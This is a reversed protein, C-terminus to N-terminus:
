LSRKVVLACIYKFMAPHFKKRSFKKPDRTFKWVPLENVARWALMPTGHAVKAAAARRLRESEIFKLRKPFYGERKNCWVRLTVYTKNTYRLAKSVRQAKEKCLRLIKRHIKKM